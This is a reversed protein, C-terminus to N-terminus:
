LCPPEALFEPQRVGQSTGHLTPTPAPATCIRPQISVWIQAHLLVSLMEWPHSQTQWEASTVKGINTARSLSKEVGWSDQLSRQELIGRGKAGLSSSSSSTNWSQEKCKGGPDFPQQSPVNGRRAPQSPPNSTGM